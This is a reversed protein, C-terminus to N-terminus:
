GVAVDTSIMKQTVGDDLLHGARSGPPDQCLESGLILIIFTELTASVVGLPCTNGITDPNTKFTRSFM